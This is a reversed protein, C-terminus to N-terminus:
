ALLAAPGLENAWKDLFGSDPPRVSALREQMSRVTRAIGEELPSSREGGIIAELIASGIEDVTTEVFPAVMESTAREVDMARVLAEVADDVYSLREVRDAEDNAVVLDEGRLAQVILRPVIHPDDLAMRPGYTTGVRVMRVDARGANVADRGLQEACSVGQGFREISTAIVVRAHRLAAVDLANATGMVGVLAARAPDDACTRESSPVALHFVYEVNADFKTVVDHEVFAFRRERKLHALTAFSGRSFDDVAIVEHGDALLRDCLHAGLVSAGGLVLIRRREM